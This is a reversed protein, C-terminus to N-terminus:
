RSGGEARPNEALSRILKRLKSLKPAGDFRVRGEVDLVLTHPVFRVGLAEASAETPDVLSSGLVGRRELEPAVATPDRDLAVSAWRIELGEAELEDRLEVLKPWEKRCNSCWTAWFVVILPHGERLSDWDHPHGELDDLRISPPPAGREVARAFAPAGGVGVADALSLAILALLVLHSRRPTSPVHPPNPM